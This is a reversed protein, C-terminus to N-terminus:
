FDALLVALRPDYALAGLLLDFSLTTSKTDVDYDRVVRISFGNANQVSAEVSAPLELPPTAFAFANPNTIIGQFDLVSANGGEVTVAAGDPIIETIPDTLVIALGTAAVTTEVILPRRVGAIRIRDGATFGGVISDVVLTSNGILNDTAVTNDTTTTGSSNTHGAVPMNVSAVWDTGMVRGMRADRLAQLSEGDRIDASHFFDSGLLKAELSSNVLGIRGAKPIQAENAVRNANAMDGVSAFLDASAYLSTAQVIKTLLFTDIEEAISVMAPVIVETSFHDLDLSMERAGIGVSVDMHREITMNRESQRIDQKTITSTFDNVAFETGQRVRVTDGVKYGNKALGFDSTKDRYLLNGAVLSDELVTLSEAAIQSVTLYSNAM